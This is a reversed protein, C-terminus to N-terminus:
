DGTLKVQCNLCYWTVPGGRDLPPLEAAVVSGDAGCNPCNAVGLPM